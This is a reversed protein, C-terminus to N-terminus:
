GRRRGRRRGGMMSGGTLERAVGAARGVAPLTSLAPALEPFAAALGPGALEAAKVGKQIGRAVKNVFHKLKTSFRGGQLAEYHDYDLEDSAKAALVSAPTLNGLSARAQNESISFTGENVVTVYFDADFDQPDELDDTNKVTARVQLTYQGQVGPAENDLLGIDKGFEAIFCSGRYKSWQPFSMNSGNRRSIEYLEQPGCQSLLGSQNNWLLDINQIALFSDAKKYDSTSRNRRCFVMLKRPIQSLKISDSTIQTSAGPALAAPTSSKIYDIPKHYPLVQLQPIPQTLDPTLYTTLLEPARYFKVDLTTIANGNKSDHSWVKSLDAKWRISINFQQVNVFGQEQRGQGSYFPSLLLPETVVYRVTTSDVVEVPFGGRPDYASAEGYGALANKATGGFSASAKDAYNQYMDPMCASMSLSKNWEERDGASLMAHVRDALNDSVTEGNIQCTIVDAISSIPLQRLADNSGLQFDADAKIELYCRVKM